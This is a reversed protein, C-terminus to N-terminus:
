IKIKHKKIKIKAELYMKNFPTILSNLTITDVIEINASSIKSFKDPNNSALKIKSIGFYKLVQIADLYDRYDDEFGLIRNAEFTDFGKEQYNYAAVKNALGIGRGEDDQYILMSNRNTAMFKLFSELQSRCDCRLSSFVDGTTCKSHIRVNVIDNVDFDKTTICIIEKSTYHNKFAYINFNGYQTPLDAKSVFDIIKENFAKYEILQQITIVPICYKKAFDYIYERNHSNGKDDLMECMIVSPAEGSLLALEVAAETHGRRKLIGGEEALVPFVHGPRKFDEPSSSPNYIEYATKAREIASIGTKTTVHDVSITFKCSDPNYYPIFFNLREQINKDIAVCFLGKAYTLIFNVKEENAHKSLLVIDAEDERNTDDFIIVYQGNKFAEIAKKM